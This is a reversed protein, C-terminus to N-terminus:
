GDTGRQDVIKKEQGAEVIKMDRDAIHWWLEDLKAVKHRLDQITTGHAKFDHAGGCPYYHDGAFLYYMPTRAAAIEPRKKENM